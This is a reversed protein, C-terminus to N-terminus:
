PKLPPVAAPTAAACPGFHACAGHGVHALGRAASGGTCDARRSIDLVGRFCDNLRGRGGPHVALDAQWVFQVRFPFKQVMVKKETPASASSDGGLMPSGTAAAAPAATDSARRKPSPIIIEEPVIKEPNILVPYSVGLDHMRESALEKM